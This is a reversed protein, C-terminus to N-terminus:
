KQESCIVGILKIGKDKLKVINDWMEQQNHALEWKIFQSHKEIVIFEAYKDKNMELLVRDEPKLDKYEVKKIM